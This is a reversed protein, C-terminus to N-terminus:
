AADVVGSITCVVVDDASVSSAQVIETGSLVVHPYFIYTGAGAPVPYEFWRSGATVDTGITLRITTAVGAAPQALTVSTIKTVTGTVNTYVTEATADVLFHALRKNVAM